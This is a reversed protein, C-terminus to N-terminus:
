FFRFIGASDCPTGLAGTGVYSINNAIGYENTNVDKYRALGIKTAAVLPWLNNVTTYQLVSNWYIAIDTAGAQELRLTGSLNYNMPFVSPETHLLTNLQLSFNSFVTLYISFNPWTQYSLGVYESLNGTPYLVAIPTESTTVNWATVSLQVALDAQIITPAGGLTQSLRRVTYTTLDTLDTHSYGVGAQIIANQGGVQEITWAPDVGPGAALDQWYKLGASCTSPKAM